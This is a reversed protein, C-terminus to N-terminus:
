LNHSTGPAQSDVNYIERFTVPHYKEKIGGWGRAIANHNDWKNTLNDSSGQIFSQRLIGESGSRGNTADSNRLIASPDIIGANMHETAPDMLLYDKLSQRRVTSTSSEERTEQHSAMKQVIPSPQVQQSQYSTVSSSSQQQQMSSQQQQMSSQQQQMSSQQQPM